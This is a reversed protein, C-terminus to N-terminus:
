AIHALKSTFAFFKRDAGLLHQQIMNYALFEFVDGLHLADAAFDQALKVAKNLLDAHELNHQQLDPYELAKLINEEDRFHQTVDEILRTVLSSIEEKQRFELM